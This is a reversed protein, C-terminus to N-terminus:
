AAASCRVCRSPRSLVNKLRNTASEEKVRAWFGKLLSLPNRCLTNWAYDDPDLYENSFSDYEDALLYIGKVYALPHNSNEEYNVTQLKEQVIRVCNELDKSTEGGLHSAYTSYFQRIANNIMNLASEAIKPDSSHNLGAFNFHLILYQNTTVREAQVDKEVLLNQLTRSLKGQAGCWSLPSAHQSNAVQWVSATTPFATCM